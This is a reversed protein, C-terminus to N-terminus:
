PIIERSLRHTGIWNRMSVQPQGDPYEILLYPRLNSRGLTAVDLSIAETWSGTNYYEGHGEVRQYDIKHSHSFVVIRYRTNRLVDHAVATLPKHNMSNAIRTPSLRFERRLFPDKSFRNKAWFYVIEILLRWFWRHDNWFAWRLYFRFPMVKDIYNRHQKMKNLFQLIFLSGWPLVLQEVGDSGRRTFHKMDFSHIFEYQHGHTVFIGDFIYATQFNVNPGLRKKITEQVAPFLMGADHNGVVLTLRNRPRMCFTWIAEVLQPHGDLIHEIQRVAVEETIAEQSGDGPDVQLMNFFDGNVIIEVDFETYSRGGYHDFFEILLDDEFFDELVNRSGDALRVGAGLHVDSFIVKLKKM